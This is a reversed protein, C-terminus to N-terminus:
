SLKDQSSLAESLCYLFSLCLDYFMIRFKMTGTDLEDRGKSDCPLGLLASPHLATLPSISSRITCLSSMSGWNHLHSAPHHQDSESM